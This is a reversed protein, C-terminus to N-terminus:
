CVFHFNCSFFQNGPRCFWAVDDVSAQDPALLDVWKPANINEYVSDEVFVSEIRKWDIKAPEMECLSLFVSSPKLSFFSAGLLWSAFASYRFIPDRSFSVTSGCTLTATNFLSSLPTVTMAEPLSSPVNTWNRVTPPNTLDKKKKELEKEKTLM